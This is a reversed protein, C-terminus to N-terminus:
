DNEDPADDERADDERADDEGADKEIGLSNQSARGIDQQLMEEKQELAQLSKEMQQDDVKLGQSSKYVNDLLANIFAAGEPSGFKRELRLAEAIAVKPPVASDYLLEFIGMRLINREVSQIREFAYGHSSKAVLADIEPLRATIKRLKEIADRVVKRSVALEAMMLALMDREESKGIDQSYLLQFVIERFKQQPVPM